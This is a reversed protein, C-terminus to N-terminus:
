VRSDMRIYKDFGPQSSGCVVAAPAVVFCCALGHGHVLASRRREKDEQRQHQEGSGCTCTVNRCARVGCLSNRGGSMGNGGSRGTGGGPWRGGAPVLM